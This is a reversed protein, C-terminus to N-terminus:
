GGSGSSTQSVNEGMRTKTINDSNYNYPSFGFNKIGLRSLTKIAYNLDEPGNEESHKYIFMTKNKSNANINASNSLETIRPELLELEDPDIEYLVFDNTVPKTISNGPKLTQYLGYRMQPQHHNFISKILEMNTIEPQETFVVGNFWNLRALQYYFADADNLDLDGPIKLYIFRVPLKAKILHLSRNLIDTANEYEDNIFFTKNLDKSFPSVIVMNVQLAELGDLMNSLLQERQYLPKDILSDLQLEVFRLDENNATKYNLEREFDENSTDTFLIIRNILPLQNFSTPGQDLTFQYKFGLNDAIQILTNNYHGYPWAIAKPEIGLQQHIRDYSQKLDSKIRGWFVAEEEYENRLPDYKRAISAAETNGQPNSLVGYHLNNTHSIVEVLKNKSVTKLQKWNMLRGQYEAPIHKSDLWGTVVSSISPFKYIALLPVVFDYYSRLGDDFTLLVPKEPLSEEGSKVKDLFSLSIPTYQHKVLYDMQAVFDSRSVAFDDHETDLAIDHYTLVSLSDASCEIGISLLLIILFSKM